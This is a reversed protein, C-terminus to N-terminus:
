VHKFETKKRKILLKAHSSMLPMTRCEKKWTIGKGPKQMPTMKVKCFSNSHIEEEETKQFIRFLISIMEENSTQYLEGVLGDPGSLKKTQIGFEIEKLSKLNNGRHKRELTLSKSTRTKRLIKWQVRATLDTLM